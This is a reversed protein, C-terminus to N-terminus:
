AGVNGGGGGDHGLRENQGILIVGARVVADFGHVWKAHYRSFRLTRSLSYLTKEPGFRSLHAVLVRVVSHIACPEWWLLINLSPLKHQLSRFVKFFLKNPAASDMVFIVMVFPFIDQRLWELLGIGNCVLIEMVNMIACGVVNAATSM